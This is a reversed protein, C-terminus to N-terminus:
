RRGGALVEAVAGVHFYVRSGTQWRAGPRFLPALWAPRRHLARRLADASPKMLETALSAYDLWEGYRSRLDAEIQARLASRDIPKSM